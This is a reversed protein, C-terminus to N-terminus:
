YKAKWYIWKNILIYKHSYEMDLCNKNQELEIFHTIEYILCNYEFYEKDWRVKEKKLVSMKVGGLM